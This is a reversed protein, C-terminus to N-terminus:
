GPLPRQHPNELSRSVLRNKIHIALLYILLFASSFWFTLFPDLQAAVLWFLLCNAIWYFVAPISFLRPEMMFWIAVQILVPLLLLQDYDWASFALTLSGLTLVPMRELWQWNDSNRKWYFVFWICALAAPIFQLWYHQVGFLLRLGSALTHTQWYLPSITSGAERYQFLVWPNFIMTLLLSALSSLIATLVVTWRKEKLLWLVLAPWILFILNPKLSILYISVGALGWLEQSIAYLFGAIGLLVFPTIQGAKFCILGPVFSIGLLVAVWRKNPSGGYLRWCLDSAVVVAVTSLILWIVTGLGSPLFGFPLIFGLVWPPNYMMVPHDLYWGPVQSEVSWMAEASYPNQGSLVLRSASWYETFDVAFFLENAAQTLWYFLLGYVLVLLIVRFFPQRYIKLM